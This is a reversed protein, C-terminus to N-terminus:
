ILDHSTAYAAAAARSPLDLRQLINAVHRHVTHESVCLVDAIERNSLGRAILRLVDRQRATLQGREDVSVTRERLRRRLDDRLAAVRDTYLRSHLRELAESALAAEAQARELRGLSALVGALELRARAAEFPAGCREYLDVADEIHAMAEDYNRQASALVAASCSVAAWLPPTDAVAALATVSELAQRARAHDGLLSQV